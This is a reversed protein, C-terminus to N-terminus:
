YSKLYSKSHRLKTSFGDIINQLRYICDQKPIELESQSIISRYVIICHFFHKRCYGFHPSARKFSAFVSFQDQTSWNENPWFFELNARCHRRYINRAIFARSKSNIKSNRCQWVGSNPKQPFHPICISLQLGVLVVIMKTYQHALFFSLLAQFIFKRATFVEFKVLITPIGSKEM